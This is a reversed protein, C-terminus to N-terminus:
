PPSLIKNLAEQDQDVASKALKQEAWLSRMARDAVSELESKALIQNLYQVRELSQLPVENLGEVASMRLIKEFDSKQNPNLIPDFTSTAINVLSTAVKSNKSWSMLTLAVFRNDQNLGTDLVLKELEDLEKESLVKAAERMELEATVPDTQIKGIEVSYRQVLQITKNNRENRIPSILTEKAQNKQPYFNFLTMQEEENFFLVSMLLTVFFILAFKVRM